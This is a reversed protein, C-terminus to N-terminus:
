KQTLIEFFFSKPGCEVGGRFFGRNRPTPDCLVTNHEPTYHRLIFVDRKSTSFLTKKVELLLFANKKGPASFVRKKKRSTFFFMKKSRSRFFHTKKQRSRFFLTKKVELPLFANKPGPASFIRKKVELQFFANKQGRAGPAIKPTMQRLFRSWSSIETDYKVCFDAAPASNVTM